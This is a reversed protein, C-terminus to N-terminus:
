SEMSDESSYFYDEFFPEADEQMKAEASIRTSEIEESHGSLAAFASFQAARESMTMQRHTKSVFHPLNIIDSYKEEADTKM